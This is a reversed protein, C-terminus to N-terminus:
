VTNTLAYLVKVIITVVASQSKHQNWVYLDLTQTNGGWLICKPVVCWASNRGGSSQDYVGFTIVGLATYNPKTVDFGYSTFSSDAGITPNWYFSETKLLPLGNGTIKGSVDLAGTWDVTLANSRTIVNNNNNGNGIIFAYKENTDEINCKGQVHQYNSSALTYLGQAHSLIGSATTNSGEAHSRMGSAVTDSGQAHSCYGSATTNSGEAHSSIDSAVSWRGQAHSSHGSATTSYGEAHSSINSSTTSYGEAHSSYGSAITFYGEAISYNGIASNDTRKGITYYPALATGSQANGSGYGFHVMESNGHYIDFSDSDVLAYSGGASNGLRIGSASFSSISAGATPVSGNWVIASIDFSGDANVLAGVSNNEKCVLIGDQYQRIMTKLGDIQRQQRDGSGVTGLVTAQGNVLAIMVKDGAAVNGITNLNDQNSIIPEVEEEQAIIPVSYLEQEEQGGIIDDQSAYVRDDTTISVPLSSSGERTYDDDVTPITPDYSSQDIENSETASIIDTQDTFIQDQIGIIINEDM